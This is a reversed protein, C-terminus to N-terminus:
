KYFGVKNLAYQAHENDDDLYLALKFAAEAKKYKEKNFAYVGRNYSIASRQEKKLIQFVIICAGALCVAAAVFWVAMSKILFYNALVILIGIIAPILNIKMDMYPLKYQPTNSSLEQGITLLKAKSIKEDYDKPRPKSSPVAVGAKLVKYESIENNYLKFLINIQSKLSQGRESRVKSSIKLLYYINQEYSDIPSIVIMNKARNYNIDTRMIYGLTDTVSMTEPSVTNEDLPINFRIYWFVDDADTRLDIQIKNQLSPTSTKIKIKSGM